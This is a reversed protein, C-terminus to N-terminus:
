LMKLHAYMQVEDSIPDLNSVSRGGFGRGRIKHLDACHKKIGTCVLAEPVTAKLSPVTIQLSALISQSFM